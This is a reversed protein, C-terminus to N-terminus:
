LMLNVFQGDPFREFDHANNNATADIYQGTTEVPDGAVGGLDAIERIRDAFGVLVQPRQDARRRPQVLVM